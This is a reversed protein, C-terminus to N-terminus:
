FRIIEAGSFFTEETWLSSIILCLRLKTWYKCIQHIWSFMTKCVACKERHVIYPLCMLGPWVSWLNSHKIYCFIHCILKCHLPLYCGVGRDSLKHPKGNCIATILMPFTHKITEYLIVKLSISKHMRICCMCVYYM